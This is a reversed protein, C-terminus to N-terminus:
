CVSHGPKAANHKNGVGVAAAASINLTLGVIPDRNIVVLISRYTPGCKKM